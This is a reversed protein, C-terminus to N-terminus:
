NMSAVQELIMKDIIDEFIDQNGTKLYEDYHINSYTEGAM